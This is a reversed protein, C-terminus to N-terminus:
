SLDTKTREGEDRTVMQQEARGAIDLSAVGVRKSCNECYDTNQGTMRVPLALACSINRRWGTTSIIIVSYSQACISQLQSSVQAIDQLAGSRSEVVAHNLVDIILIPWYLVPNIRFVALRRLHGESSRTGM